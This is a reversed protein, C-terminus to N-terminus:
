MQFRELGPFDAVNVMETMRLGLKECGLPLRERHLVEALVFNVVKGAFGVLLWQEEIRKNTVLSIGDASINKTFTPFAADIRPQNEADLPGVAVVISIDIRDDVRRDQEREKDVVKRLFSEVEQQGKRKRLQLMPSERYCLHSGGLHLDPI